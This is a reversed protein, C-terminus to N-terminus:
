AHVRNRAAILVEVAEPAWPQAIERKLKQVRVAVERLQAPSLESLRRLTEPRGLAAVGSRLSYMLAEVTAQPADVRQHQNLEAWARDPWINDAMLRRLRALREPETEVILPRNGRTEHYERAATKWSPAEGPQGLLRLAVPEMFFNFDIGQAFSM